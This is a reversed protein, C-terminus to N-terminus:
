RIVNFIKMCRTMTVSACESFKSQIKQFQTFFAIEGSDVRYVGSYGKLQKYDQPRPDEPLLLIKTMVQKFFKPHLDILDKRASKTVRLALSLSETM